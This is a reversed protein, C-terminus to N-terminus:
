ESSYKLSNLENLISELTENKESKSIHLAENKTEPIPNHTIQYIQKLLNEEIETFGGAVEPHGYEHSLITRPHAKERNMQSEVMTIEKNDHNYYSGSGVKTFEGSMALKDAIEEELKVLSNLVTILNDSLIHM